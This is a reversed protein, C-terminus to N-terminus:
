KKFVKDRTTINDRCTRQDGDSKLADCKKIDGSEQAQVLASLEEAPMQQIPTAGNGSMQNLIAQTAQDSSLLKSPDVEGQQTQPTSVKAVNEVTKSSCGTIM